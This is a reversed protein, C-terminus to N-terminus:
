DLAALGAMKQTRVLKDGPTMEEEYPNCCNCAQATIPM